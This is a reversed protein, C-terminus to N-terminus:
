NSGFTGCFVLKCSYGSVLDETLEMGSPSIGSSAM